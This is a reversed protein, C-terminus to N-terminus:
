AEGKIVTHRAKICGDETTLLTTYQPGGALILLWPKDGTFDEILRKLESFEVEKYERDPIYETEDPAYRFGKSLSRITVKM